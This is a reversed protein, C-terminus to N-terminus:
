LSAYKPHSFCKLFSEDFNFDCNFQCRFDNLFLEMADSVSFKRGLEKSVSTVQVDKLGCPVIHDFWALDVDCNLAIGHGTIYSKVGIGISAIKRSGVWVGTLPHGPAKVDTLGSNLCTKILVKELQCVYWKVSGSPHFQKLNLIPYAVLQGPGHFTILGGRNTKFFDAGLSKLRIEDAESYDKSRIGITYVPKHELLLLSNVKSFSSAEKFFSKQADLGTQYNILGLWNVNVLPRLKNNM